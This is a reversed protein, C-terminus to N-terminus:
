GRRAAGTDGAGRGRSRRLPPRCRASIAPAAAIPGASHTTHPRLRQAARVCAGVSNVPNACPAFRSDSARYPGESTQVAVLSANTSEREDVVGVGVVVTRVADVHGVTLRDGDPEVGMVREVIRVAPLRRQDGLHDGVVGDREVAMQDGHALERIRRAADVYEGGVEQLCFVSNRWCMWPARRSCKVSCASAQRATGSGSMAM